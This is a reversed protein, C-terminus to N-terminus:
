PPADAHLRMIEHPRMEHPRMEIEHPRMPWAVMFGVLRRFWPPADAHPRMIEHPRMEIRGWSMM